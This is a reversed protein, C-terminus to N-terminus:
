NATVSNGATLDSKIQMSLHCKLNQGESKVDFWGYKEVRIDCSLGRVNVFKSNKSAFELQVLTINYFM